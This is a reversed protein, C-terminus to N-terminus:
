YKHHVSMNLMFFMEVAHHGWTQVVNPYALFCSKLSHVIVAMKTLSMYKVNICKYRCYM